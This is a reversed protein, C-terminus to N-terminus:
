PVVKYDKHFEGTRFMYAIRDDRGEGEKQNPDVDSAWKSNMIEDAVGDWDNQMMAEIAKEFKLFKSRGLTFLMSVLALQRAETMGDFFTNGVVIRAERIHKALDERFLEDIMHESLRMDLLNRGILHGRGITWFGQSDRYPVGPAGVPGDGEDLKFIKVAKDFFSM